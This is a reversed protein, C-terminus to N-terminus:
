EAASQTKKYLQHFCDAAAAWWYADPNKKKHYVLSSCTATTFADCIMLAARERERNSSREKGREGRDILGIKKKTQAHFPGAATLRTTLTPLWPTHTRTQTHTHTHTHTHRKSCWEGGGRETSNLENTNIPMFTVHASSGFSRSYPLM